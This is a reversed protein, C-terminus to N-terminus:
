TFGIDNMDAGGKGNQLLHERETNMQIIAALIVTGEAHNWARM